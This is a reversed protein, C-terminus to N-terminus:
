EIYITAWAKLGAPNTAWTPTVWKIQISQGATVAQNMAINTVGTYASDNVLADSILADTGGNVRVYISSTESSGAVETFHVSAGKIIGTKFAIHNDRGESSDMATATGMGLYYITNDAPSLSNIAQLYLTYGGGVSAGSAVTGAATGVELAAAGGAGIVNALTVKAPNLLQWQDTTARYSFQCKYGAEPIDGLALATGAGKVITKPDTLNYQFTPGIVGNAGLAYVDVRMGDTLVAVGPVFTGVMADATGTATAVVIHHHGPNITDPDRLDTSLGNFAADFADDSAQLLTGYGDATGLVGLPPIPLQLPGTTTTTVAGASTILLAFILGALFGKKIM